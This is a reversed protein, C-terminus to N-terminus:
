LEVKITKSMSHRPGALENLVQRPLQRLNPSNEFAFNSSRLYDEFSGIMDRIRNPRVDPLERLNCNFTAIPSVRTTSM